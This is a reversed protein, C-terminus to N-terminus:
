RPGRAAAASVRPDAAGEDRYPSLLHDALQPALSPLLETAGSLVYAGVLAAVNGVLARETGAPLGDPRRSTGGGARLAAAVRDLARNHRAAMAPGAARAELTFLRATEPEAAVFGLAGALTAEVRAEWVGAPAEAAAVSVREWARREADDYAALLCAEKDDFQQYFTRRSVGARELVNAVTTRAYGHEALAAPMAALMRRRQDAEIQEPPLNHRGRPLPRTASVSEYM